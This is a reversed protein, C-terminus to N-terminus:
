RLARETGAPLTRESDFNTGPGGRLKLGGRAMVVYRGAAIAVAPKVTRSLQLFDFIQEGYFKEGDFYGQKLGKAPNYSGTNYARDLVGVCSVSQPLIQSQIAHNRKTDAVGDVKLPGALASLSEWPVLFGENGLWIPLRHEIDRAFSQFIHRSENRPIAAGDGIGFLEAVAIPHKLAIKLKELVIGVVKKLALVFVETVRQGL